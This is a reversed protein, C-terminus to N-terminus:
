RRGGKGGGPAMAAHGGAMGHNREQNQHRMRYRQEARERQHAQLEDRDIGGNRNRYTDAHAPADGMHRYQHQEQTRIRMRESRVVDFEDPSVSGSGEVDFSEFPVPGRAPIEPDAAALPAAALAMLILSAIRSQSTLSM